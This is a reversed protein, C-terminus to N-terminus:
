QNAIPRQLQNLRLLIEDLKQAEQSLGAAGWKVTKVGNTPNRESLASLSEAATKSAASSGFALTPEDVASTLNKERQFSHLQLFGIRISPGETREGNGDTYTSSRGVDSRYFGACGISLISLVLISLISTLKTM